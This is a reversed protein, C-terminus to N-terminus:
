PTAYYRDFLLNTTCVVSYTFFILCLFLEMKRRWRAKLDQSDSLSYAFIVAPIIFYRGQIGSVVTAPHPSWAILLAFFILLTSALSVLLLISRSFLEKKIRALSISLAVLVGLAALFQDYIRSKFSANLWGLIGVFSQKYFTVVSQDSLTNGVVQFFKAPNLLYFVVLKSPPEEMVVRMDVTTTIALFLWTFIGMITVLLILYNKKSPMSFCSAAVLVGLPLLNLKSGALLFVVVALVYYLWQPRESKFNMIRLFISIACLSFAIALGDISASAFQFLVMPMSILAIVAPNAPYFSFSFFIILVSAVLAMLRALRYSHNVTLNLNEGILLGAAQPFYILPFTYGTGPAIDFVRVRSWKIQNASDIMDASIKGTTPYSM